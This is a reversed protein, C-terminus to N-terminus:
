SYPGARMWAIIQALVIGTTILVWALGELAATRLENQVGEPLFFRKQVGQVM